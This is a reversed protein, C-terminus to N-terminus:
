AMGSGIAFPQGYRCRESAAAGPGPAAAEGSM